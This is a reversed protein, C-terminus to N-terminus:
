LIIGEIYELFINLYNDNVESGIYGVINKNSLKKYMSIEHKLADVMYKNKGGIEHVPVKKIAMMKGSQRDLGIVVTGYSGSGIYAGESWEIKKEIREVSMREPRYRRHCEQREEETFYDITPSSQPDMQSEEEQERDKEISDQPTIDNYSPSKPESSSIPQDLEFRVPVPIEQSAPRRASGCIIPNSCTAGM